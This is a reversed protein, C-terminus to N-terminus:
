GVAKDEGYAILFDDVKYHSGSTRDISQSDFTFYIRYRLFIGHVRVSPRYMIKGAPISM